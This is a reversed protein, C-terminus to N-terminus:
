SAGGGPEVTVTVVAPEGIERWVRAPMIVELQVNTELDGGVFHGPRLLYLPVVFSSIADESNGVPRRPRRIVEVNCNPCLATPHDGELSWFANCEHAFYSRLADKKAV